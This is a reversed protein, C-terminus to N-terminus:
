PVRGAATLAGSDEASWGGGLARYLTIWATVRERQLEILTSQALVANRRAIELDFLSGLGGRSRAETARLSALFDRAAADVDAQRATTSQLVVLSSEVERVARRVNARYLAVAEDYNARSSATAAARSGGDFLPFNISIPGLTWTTGHATNGGSNVALGLFNGSLSVQPKERAAAQVTDGAAAVVARVQRVLPAAGADAAGDSFVFLDSRRALPSAALAELARATHQPRKYVFLAVPALSAPM